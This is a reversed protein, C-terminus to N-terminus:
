SGASGVQPPKPSFQDPAVLWKRGERVLFFMDQGQMAQKQDDMTFTVAFLYTVFAAKGWPYIQVM